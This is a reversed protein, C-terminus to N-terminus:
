WCRRRGSAAGRSSAISTGSGVLYSIRNEHGNIAFENDLALQRCEGRLAALQAEDLPGMATRERGFEGRAVPLWDGPTDGM